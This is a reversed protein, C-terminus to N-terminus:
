NVFWDHLTFSHDQMVMILRLGPWIAFRSNCVDIWGQAPSLWHLLEFRIYELSQYIQVNGRTHVQQCVIHVLKRIKRMSLPQLCADQNWYDTKSSQRSIESRCFHQSASSDDKAQNDFQKFVPTEDQRQGAPYYWRHHDNFYIRRTEFPKDPLINLPSLDSGPNISAPNCVASPDKEIAKISRWINVIFWHGKLLWLIEEPDKVLNEILQIASPHRAGQHVYPDPGKGARFFPDDHLQYRLYYHHVITKTAWTSILTRQWTTPVGQSSLHM